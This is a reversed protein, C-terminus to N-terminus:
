QVAPLLLVPTVAIIAAGTTKNFTMMSSVASQAAGLKVVARISSPPVGAPQIYSLIFTNGPGVEGQKRELVRSGDGFILIEVPLVDASINSVEVAAPQSAVLQVAPLYDIEKEILTFARSRTVYFGSAIAGLVFFAIPKWSIRLNKVVGGQSVIDIRKL